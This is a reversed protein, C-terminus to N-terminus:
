EECTGAAALVASLVGPFKAELDELRLSNLHQTGVKETYVIGAERLIKFHHSLTSKAIHDGGCTRCAQEGKQAITKVINLRVPDGLAYLVDALSIQSIDPHSIPRM